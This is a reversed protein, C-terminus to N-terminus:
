VFGGGGRKADIRKFREDEKRKKIVCLTALILSLIISIYSYIYTFCGNMIADGYGTVATVCVDAYVSSNLSDIFTQNACYGGVEAYDSTNFYGCCHFMDQLEVRQAATAVEWKNHYWVRERLSIFWIWTGVVLVALADVFLCWNLVVLRSTRNHQQSVAALSVPLTLLLLVGLVTASDFEGNDLSWQWLLNTKKRWVVSLATTVAGAAALCIDFFSWVCMLRTSVM